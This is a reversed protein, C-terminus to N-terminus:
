QDTHRLMHNSPLVRADYDLAHALTQRALAFAVQKAGAAPTSDILNRVAYDLTLAKEMHVGPDAGSVNEEDSLPTALEGCADTGLLTLSAANHKVGLETCHAIAAQQIPVITPNGIASQFCVAFKPKPLQPPLSPEAFATRLAQSPAAVNEATVQIIVDDAYAWLIRKCSLKAFAKDIARAFVFVLCAGPVRHASLTAMCLLAMSMSSCAPGTMAM